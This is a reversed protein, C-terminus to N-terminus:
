LQVTFPRKGVVEFKVKMETLYETCRQTKVKPQARDTFKDVDYTVDTIRPSHFRTIKGVM